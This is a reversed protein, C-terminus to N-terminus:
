KFPLVIPNQWCILFNSHCIMVGYSPRPTFPNFQRGYLSLPPLLSWYKLHSWAAYTCFVSNLMNCGGQIPHWEMAPNGGVTSLFLTFYLEKDTCLGFEFTSHALWYLVARTGLRRYLQLIFTFQSCGNNKKLSVPVRALLRTGLVKEEKLSWVFLFTWTVGHCVCLILRYQNWVNRTHTNGVLILFTNAVYRANRVILSKSWFSLFVSQGVHLRWRKGGSIPSM